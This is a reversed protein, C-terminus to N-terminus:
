NELIPHNPADEDDRWRQPGAGTCIGKRLLGVTNRAATAGCISLSQSYLEAWTTTLTHERRKRPGYFLFLYGGYISNEDVHIAIRQHITHMSIQEDRKFHTQFNRRSEQFACTNYRNVSPSLQLYLGWRLYAASSLFTM